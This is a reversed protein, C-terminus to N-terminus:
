FGLNEWHGLRLAPATTSHNSRSRINETGSLSVKKEKSFKFSLFNKVVKTVKSWLKPLFLTKKTFILNENLVNLKSNIAWLKGRAFKRRDGETFVENYWSEIQSALKWKLTLKLDISVFSLNHSTDSLVQMSRWSGAASGWGFRLFYWVALKKIVM